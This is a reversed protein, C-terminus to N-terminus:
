PDINKYIFVANIMDPLPKIDHATALYASTNFAQFENPVHKNKFEDSLENWRKDDKDTIRTDSKNFIVLKETELRQRLFKSLCPLPIAVASSKDENWVLTSLIIASRDPLRNFQAVDLILDGNSLKILKRQYGNLGVASIGEDAFLAVLRHNLDKQARIEAEDRMVGSQMIRETYASDAHLIIPQTEEQQSIARALGTLFMGNDLHEYDIAAIYRM